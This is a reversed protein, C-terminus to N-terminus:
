KSDGADKAAAAPTVNPYRTILAQNEPTQKVFVNAVKDSYVLQWDERELLLSSLASSNGYIVCTIEYKKLVDGWGREVDILRLYEETREKGFIDRGDFFMRVEPVSAYIMYSGFVESNFINGTIKERKLFEVADVPLNRRDFDYKITGTFCMVVAALIALASWLHWKTKADIATIRGSM